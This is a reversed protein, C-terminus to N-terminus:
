PIRDIAVGGTRAARRPKRGRLLPENAVVDLLVQGVIEAQHLDGSDGPQATEVEGASELLCEPDARYAVDVAASDLTCAVHELVACRRHSVHGAAEAEAAEALEVARELVQDALRRVRKAAFLALQNLGSAARGECRGM